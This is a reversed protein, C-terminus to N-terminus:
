DPKQLCYSRYSLEGRRVAEYIHSGPLGAFDRGIGHMFRPLHRAILDQSRPANRDM